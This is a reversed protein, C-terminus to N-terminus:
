EGSYPASSPADTLGDREDIAGRLSPPMREHKKQARNTLFTELAKVYEVLQVPPFSVQEINM